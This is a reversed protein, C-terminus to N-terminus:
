KKSFSFGPIKGNASSGSTSSVGPDTVRSYTVRGDKNCTIERVLDTGIWGRKSSGDSNKYTSVCYKYAANGSSHKWALSTQATLGATVFAAILLIKKSKM